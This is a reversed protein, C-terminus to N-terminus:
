EKVALPTIVWLDLKEISAPGPKIHRVAEDFDKQGKVLVYWRGNDDQAYV